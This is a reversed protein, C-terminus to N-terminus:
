SFCYNTRFLSNKAADSIYIAVRGVRYVALGCTLNTGAHRIVKALIRNPAAMTTLAVSHYLFVITVHGVVARSAGVSTLIPKM